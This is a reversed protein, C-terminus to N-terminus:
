QSTLYEIKFGSSSHLNHFKRILAILFIQEFLLGPYDCPGSLLFAIIFYRGGRIGGAVQNEEGYSQNRTKTHAELSIRHM